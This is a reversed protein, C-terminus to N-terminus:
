TNVNAYFERYKFSHFKYGVEFKLWCGLLFLRELIRKGTTIFGTVPKRLLSKLSSYEPLEIEMFKTICLKPSFERKGSLNSNAANFLNGIAILNILFNLSSKALMRRLGVIVTDETEYRTVHHRDPQQRPAFLNSISAAIMLALQKFVAFAFNVKHEYATLPIEGSHTVEIVGLQKGRLPHKANIQADDVNGGIVQAVLVSSFFQFRVPFAVGFAACDQLTDAGFRSFATQTFHAVFLLPKLFMLVMANRFADDGSSFAGMHSYCKFVELINEVPNLSSFLLPFAQMVPAEALESSKYFIFGLLGPHRNNNDVRAIGAPFTWFAPMDIFAVPFGLGNKDAFGTPMTRVGVKYCGTVDGPLTTNYVQRHECM